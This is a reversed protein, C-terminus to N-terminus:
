TGHEVNDERRAHLFVFPLAAVGVLGFVTGLREDWPHSLAVLVLLFACCLVGLGNDIIHGRHHERIANPLHAASYLGIGGFVVIAVVLDGDVGHLTGAVRHPTEQDRV